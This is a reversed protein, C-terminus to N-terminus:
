IKNAENIMCVYIDLSVNQERVFKAMRSWLPVHTWDWLNAKPIYLEIENSFYKNGGILRLKINILKM